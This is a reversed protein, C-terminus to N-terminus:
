VILKKAQECAMEIANALTSTCVGGDIPELDCHPEEAYIDYFFGGESAEQISIYIENM